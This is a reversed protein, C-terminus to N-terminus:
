TTRFGSQNKIILHEKCLHSQLRRLLLRELLRALCATISLPRYNDPNHPETSKKSIMTIVSSKWEKPIKGEELINNFIMLIKGKMKESINKILLNSHGFKDM